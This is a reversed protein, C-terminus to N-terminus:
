ELPPLKVFEQKQWMMMLEETYMNMWECVMKLAKLPPYPIFNVERKRTIQIKSETKQVTEQLVGGGSSVCSAPSGVSSIESFESFSVDRSLSLAVSLIFM